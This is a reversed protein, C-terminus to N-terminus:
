FRRFGDYWQEVQKHTVHFEADNDNTEQNTKSAPGAGTHEQMRLRELPAGSRAEDGQGLERAALLERLDIELEAPGAIEAARPLVADFFLEEPEVRAAHSAM